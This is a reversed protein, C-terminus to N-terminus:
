SAASVANRASASAGTAAPEAGGTGADADANPYAARISANLLNSGSSPETRAAKECPVTPEAAAPRKAGASPSPDISWGVTAAAASAPAAAAQASEPAAAAAAAVKVSSALVRAVQRRLGDAPKRSYELGRQARLWAVIADADSATPTTNHARGWDAVRHPLRPDTHPQQGKM